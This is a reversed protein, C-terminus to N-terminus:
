LSDPTTADSVAMGYDLIGPQKVVTSNPTATAANGSLGQIIEAEQSLPSLYASPIQQLMQLPIAELAGAMQPAALQLQREMQYNQLRAAQEGEGARAGAAAANAQAAQEMGTSFGMGARGFQGRLDAATDAVPALATRRGARIANELQPTGNLYDGRSIAALNSRGQAFAPNNAATRSRAAYDDAWQGYEGSQFKDLGGYTAERRAQGSGYIPDFQQPVDSYKKDKGCFSPM